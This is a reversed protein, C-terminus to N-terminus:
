LSPGAHRGRAPALVAAFRHGEHSLPQRNCRLSFIEEPKKGNLALQTRYIEPARRYGSTNARRIFLPLTL